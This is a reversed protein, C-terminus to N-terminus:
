ILQINKYCKGLFFSYTTISKGSLTNDKSVIAKNSKTFILNKRNSKGYLDTYSIEVNMETESIDKITYITKRNFYNNSCSIKDEIQNYDGSDIFKDAIYASYFGDEGFSVFYNGNEWTGIISPSPLNENEIEEEKEELTEYDKSCSALVFLAVFMPLMFLIKKM